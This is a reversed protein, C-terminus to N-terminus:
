LGLKASVPGGVRAKEGQSPLLVPAKSRHLSEPRHPRSAAGSTSPNASREQAFGLADDIRWVGSQGGPFTERLLGRRDEALFGELLMQVVDVTAGDPRALKSLIIELLPDAGRNHGIRM